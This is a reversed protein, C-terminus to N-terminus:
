SFFSLVDAVPRRLSRASPPETIALRFLFIESQHENVAFLRRYHARLEYLEKAMADPISTGAGQILGACLYVPAMLPHLAVHSGNARLWARQMSRGGHLYDIPHQSQVTILACCSAAAVLRRSMKELNRGGGWLQILDLVPRDRFLHFFAQDTASLELTSIGLGDRSHQEEEETWRIESMMEQYFPQHLLRIRDAAGVIQGLELLENPHEVSFFAAGQVSEAAQRIQTIVDHPLLTRPGSKRNTHRAPIVAVLEDCVHPEVPRSTGPPLFDFAAILPAEDGLPFHRVSVEIGQAHAQLILNELAAGLAVLPAYPEYDRLLASRELDHLLFLTGNCYVWQWPQSNGASPALIAAEVLQQVQQQRLLLREEAQLSGAQEVLTRMQERPLSESTHSFLTSRETTTEQQHMPKRDSVLEELDVFYRGSEKYHGLAIRRCVDAAMAGGLVVSSALQPWTEISQEIEIMSAKARRSLTELGLLSFMFSIKEETSLHKLQTPDPNGILGHLLPREPELDFREVDILGRDSTDMVVPIRLARARLRALIKIDLGDCEDVLIDLKGGELLFQDLNSEHIGEPFCRLSLFPDIEAIERAALIAKAVGLNHVGSRIRNLNSLELVDFDALRIEGFSREMAITLAISQGVSLGIIGIKKHSLLDYETPAIKYANRASRLSIFEQEDLLHVLQHSWPYYVWVGYHASPMTGLWSQVQQDLETQQYKREPTRTKILGALQDHLQDHILLHPMSALLQQYKVRDQQRSLRFFVPRYVYDRQELLEELWIPSEADLRRNEAM